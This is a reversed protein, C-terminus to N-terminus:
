GGQMMKVIEIVDNPAVPVDPIEGRRYMTEGHMVVVNKPRVDLEALLGLLTMGERYAYTRGNVQM